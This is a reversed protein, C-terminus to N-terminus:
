GTQAQNGSKFQSLPCNKNDEEIFKMEQIIKEKTNEDFNPEETLIKPHKWIKRDNRHYELRRFQLQCNKNRVTMGFWSDVSSRYKLPIFYTSKAWHSKIVIRGIFDEDVCDLLNEITNM